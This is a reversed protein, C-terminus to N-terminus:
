KGGKDLVVKVSRPISLRYTWVPQGPVLNEVIFNELKDLHTSQAYM